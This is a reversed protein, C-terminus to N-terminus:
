IKDRLKTAPHASLMKENEIFHDLIDKLGANIRDIREVNCEFCLHPSWATGAPKGCGPTICPKGTHYKASNGRHNPDKYAILKEM